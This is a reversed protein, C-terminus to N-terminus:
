ATKQFYGAANLLDARVEFSQLRGKRERAYVINEAVTLV